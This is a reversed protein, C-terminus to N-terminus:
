KDKDGKYFDALGQASCDPVTVLQEDVKPQVEPPIEREGGGTALAMVLKNHALAFKADKECNILRSEARTQLIQELQANTRRDDARDQLVFLVSVALSGAAILACAISTYRALATQDPTM